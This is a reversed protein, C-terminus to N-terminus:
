CQCSGWDVRIVATLRIPSMAGVGGEERFKLFVKHEEEVRHQGRTKDQREGACEVGSSGSANSVINSEDFKIKQRREAGVSRESGKLGRSGKEGVKNKGKKCGGKNTGSHEMSAKSEEGDRGGVM